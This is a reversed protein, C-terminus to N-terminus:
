EKIMKRYGIIQNKNQLLIMYFGKAIESLDLKYSSDFTKDSKLLRGNLDFLKIQFESLDSVKIEVFDYAPNPYLEIQTKFEVNDIGTWIYTYDCSDAIGTSYLGIDADQYCRVGNTFNGDCAANDWPNWNFLYKIDGIKEIITSSYTETKNKNYTVYLAKLDQANIQTISVSDVTITLTDIDQERAKLKIIWSDTATANFDYLIQFEHFVTDLFFVTDNRSFLYEIRPRDNCELKHRKIIKRCTEGFIFTDKEATFKIYNKNGSFAFLESYYWEAGIPAFEQGYFTITSIVIIVTLVIKSMPNRMISRNTRNTRELALERNLTYVIISQLHNETLNGRKKVFWLRCFVVSGRM